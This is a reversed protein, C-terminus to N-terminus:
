LPTLYEHYALEPDSYLLYQHEEQTKMGEASVLYLVSSISYM